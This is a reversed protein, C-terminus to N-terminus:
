LTVEKYETSVVVFDYCIEKQLDLAAIRLKKHLFFLFVAGCQPAATNM